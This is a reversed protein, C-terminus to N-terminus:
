VPCCKWLTLEEKKLRWFVTLPEKNVCSLQLIMKMQTRSVPDKTWQCQFALMMECKATELGERGKVM